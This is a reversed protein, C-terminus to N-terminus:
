SFMKSRVTEHMRRVGGGGIQMVSSEAEESFGCMPHLTCGRFKTVHAEEQRVTVCISRLDVFNTVGVTADASQCKEVHERVEQLTEKLSYKLVEVATCCSVCYM